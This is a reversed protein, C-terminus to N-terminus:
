SELWDLMAMPTRSEWAIWLWEHLEASHCPATTWRQGWGQEECLFCSKRELGGGWVGEMSRIIKSRSPRIGKGEWYNQAHSGEDGLLVSAVLRNVSLLLALPLQATYHSSSASLNPEPGQLLSIRNSAIRYPEFGLFM